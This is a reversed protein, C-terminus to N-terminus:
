GGSPTGQKRKKNAAKPTAGNGPGAIGTARLVVPKVADLGQAQARTIFQKDNTCFVIKHGKAAFHLLCDLIGDDKLREILRGAPLESPLQVRCLPEKLLLNLVLMGMKADHKARANGPATAITKLEYMVNRPLLIAIQSDAGSWAKVCELIINRDKASGMFVNTDFAVMTMSEEENMDRKRKAGVAMGDENAANDLQRSLRKVASGKKKSGPTRSLPRRPVLSTAAAFHDTVAEEAALERLRRAKKTTTSLRAKKASLRMKKASKTGLTAKGKKQATRRVMKSQQSRKGATTGAAPTEEGLGSIYSPLEGAPMAGRFVFPEGVGQQQQQQAPAFGFAPAAPPRGFTPTQYSAPNVPTYPSLPAQGAPLITSGSAQGGATSSDPGGASLNAAAPPHQAPGPQAVPRATPAATAQQMASPHLGAVPPRQPHQGFVFDAPVQPAPAHQPQSAHPMGPASSPMDPASPPVAAGQPELSMLVAQLAVQLQATAQLAARIVAALQPQQESPAHLIANLAQPLGNISDLMPQPDPFPQQQQHPAPQPGLHPTQASPQASPQQEPQMSTQRVDQQSGHAAQQGAFSPVHIQPDTAHAERTAVNQRSAQLWSAPPPPADDIQAGRVQAQPTAPAQQPKAQRWGSWGPLPTIAPTSALHQQAAPLSQHAPVPTGAVPPFPLGSDGRHGPPMPLQLPSLLQSSASSPLAFGPFPLVSPQGARNKSQAFAAFPSLSQSTQAAQEPGTHAGSGWGSQGPGNQQVGADAAAGAAAEAGTQMGAGTPGPADAGAMNALRHRKAPRVGFPVSADHFAGNSAEATGDRNMVAASGAEASSPQQQSSAPQQSAQVLTQAPAETIGNALPGNSRVQLSLPLGQVFGNLLPRAAAHGQGGLLSAQGFANGQQAAQLPPPAPRRVPQMQGLSMMPGGNTFSAHGFNQFAGSAGPLGNRQVQVIGPAFSAPAAANPAWHQVAGNAPPRVQHWLEPALLPIHAGQPRRTAFLQLLISTEDKSLDFHFSTANYFLSWGILPKYELESIAAIPEHPLVRVQAPFPTVHGRRGWAKPEIDMGGNTTASFPGLLMRNSHDFLFVPLGPRIYQVIPVFADQMMGFLRRELCERINDKSCSFIVGGLQTAMFRYPQARLPVAAGAFCSLLAAANPGLMNYGDERREPDAEPLAELVEQEKMVLPPEREEVEVWASGPATDKAYFPGLLLRADNNFLFVPLGAPIRRRERALSLPVHFRHQAYYDDLQAGTCACILAGTMLAAEQDMPMPEVAPANKRKKKKRKVSQKAGVQLVDQMADEFASALSHGQAPQQLGEERVHGNTSPTAGNMDPHAAARYQVTSPGIQGDELPSVPVASPNLASPASAAQLHRVAEAAEALCAASHELSSPSQSKEAVARATALKDQLFSLQEATGPTATVIANADALLGGVPSGMTSTGEAPTSALGDASNRGQQGVAAFLACLETVQEITLVPEFILTHTCGLIDAVQGALPVPDYIADRAVPLHASFQGGWIPSNPQWSPAGNCKWKGHLEKTSYNYLFLCTEETVRELRPM